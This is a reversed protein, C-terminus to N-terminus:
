YRAELGIEKAKEYFWDDGYNEDLIYQVLELLKENEDRLKNVTTSSACATFGEDNLVNFECPHGSELVEGGVWGIIDGHANFVPINAYEGYESEHSSELTLVVSKRM